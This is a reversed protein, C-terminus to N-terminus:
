AHRLHAAGGDPLDDWTVSTIVAHRLGLQRVADVLHQPEEPDVPKPQVHDVACFSLRPYLYPGPHPLDGDAAPLVGQHEPM